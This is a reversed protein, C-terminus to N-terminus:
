GREYHSWVSIVQIVKRQSDVRYVLRHKVNIRRSYYGQLNGSLKEYPPEFPDRKLIALLHKLKGSLNASGLKPADKLAM